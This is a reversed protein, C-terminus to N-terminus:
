RHEAPAPPASLFILAHVDQSDDGRSITFGLHSLVALAAANGATTDARVRVAGLAAAQQLAAVMVARGLGRGRARRTLWIGTELEDPEETRKLRVSGVVAENLVVAWTAEGTTGDLGARRDRHFDRLWGVRVATWAEGATLPPTVDDASADSTAAQVLQELVADRVAVLVPLPRMQDTVDAFTVLM